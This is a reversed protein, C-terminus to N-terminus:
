KANWRSTTQKSVPGETRPQMHMRDRKEDDLFSIKMPQHHFTPHHPIVVVQIRMRVFDISYFEMGHQM